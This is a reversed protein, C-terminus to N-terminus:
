RVKKKSLSIKGNIIFVAVLGLIGGIVTNLQVVEDLFLWSFFVAASPVIFIFSNAKDSGLKTTAYFYTTTAVTSNIIGFWLINSWFKFDGTTAISQIENFDVLCAIAALAILHMWLNFSIPSGYSASKSTVLSMCAWTIAAGIFFVNGFSFVSSYNEWVNLLISGALLGIGLGVLSSKKPLKQSILINLVFTIIPISITILVGAAGPLGKQLGSFFLLTYCTMLAGGLLAPLVGKKSIKIPTKSFFLIPLLSGPVFLFRIFTISLPSGYGSLVKASSWSIGWIMM